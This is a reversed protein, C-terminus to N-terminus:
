RVKFDELKSVRPQASTGTDVLSIMTVEHNVNQEHFWLSADNFFVEM